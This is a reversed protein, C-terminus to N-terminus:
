GGGHSPACAARCLAILEQAAERIAQSDGRARWLTEFRRASLTVEPLGFSGASGALQHATESLEELRQETLMSEMQAIRRPLEAIFMKVITEFEATHSPRRTATASPLTPPEEEPIFEAVVPHHDRAIWMACLSTLKERDIPKTLYGDCGADLCKEADGAMAHATLAIVPIMLGKSRLVRTATYGDMKPMQMDMLILDVPLPDLLPADLLGGQALASIALEGNEAVVVEAGARRLHFSVLRRNDPGDEVMLIRSGNLVPADSAPASQPSRDRIIYSNKGAPMLPVGDLPGTTLTLTFVSGVGAESAVAIDGGLMQALRKSITLGLGTGGFKRTTSADGQEFAGFLSQTQGATMGIGTDSVQFCLFPGGPTLTDLSTRITVGGAETFKIANGVLNLLIQRLRLPDSRIRLPVATQHITELTLAKAQAKVHMLSLVDHIIQDPSTDVSEVTMKGAEIKSLDLIDNIIALLHEGNRKITNIYDLRNRPSLGRDWEEALLDAYGLIGTMPTRIEHSMNALFESKSRTAANAADRATRIAETAFKNETIDNIGAIAAEIAGDASRMAQTNISIWRFGGRPTEIGMVAGRIAEGTRLTVMVPHDGGPWPDGNEHITRWAHDQYSHGAVGGLAVGLIKEAEPNCNIITGDGSLVVLGETMTKFISTLQNRQAVQQTIDTEVVIFGRLSGDDEHLAQVEIDLVRDNGARGHFFLETRCGAGAELANRIATSAAPAARDCQLFQELGRGVPEGPTCGTLATLGNNVWVIKRNADAIIVANTTKEAVLALRRLDATMGQALAKARRATMGLTYLVVALASSVLLGGFGIVATPIYSGEQFRPTENITVTWTRGGIRVPVTKFFTRDSFSSASITGTYGSLHNDEDYLLSSMDTREGDFVDFDVEGDAVGVIGSFILKNALRMYVWGVLAERREDPTRPKTGNRYVPLYYHFGRSKDPANILTIAATMSAEGTLMAREAAERRAPEHGVDYGLVASNEEAPEIYQTVYLEAADGSTVVRFDPADDARVRNLYEALDSRRVREVYGIGLAGPFERKFNRSEVIARFEGREVSKSAAFVSRTGALGYSYVGVRRVIEARVREALADFRLRNSNAVHHVAFDVGVLTLGIGLVAAFAPWFWFSVAARPRDEEHAWRKESM